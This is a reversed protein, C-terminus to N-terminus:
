KTHDEYKSKLKKLYQSIRQKRNKELIYNKRIM